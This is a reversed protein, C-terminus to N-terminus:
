FYYLSAAISALVPHRKLFDRTALIYGKGTPKGYIKWYQYEHLCIQSPEYLSVTWDDEKLWEQLLQARVEVQIQYRSPFLERM